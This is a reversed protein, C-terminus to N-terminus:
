TLVMLRVLDHRTRAGLKQLTNSQHFKVTRRTIGLAEAISAPDHGLLLHRLISRERPSLGGEEALEQVRATWLDGLVDHTLRRHVVRATNDSSREATVIDYTRAGDHARVVSTRPWPASEDRRLPCNVCPGRGGAVKEFCHDGSQVVGEFGDDHSHVRQVRGFDGDVMVECDVYALREVAEHSFTAHRVLVSVGKSEPGGLAELELTVALREGGRTIVVGEYRNLKGSLAEALWPPTPSGSVDAFVMGAPAGIAEDRPVGLLRALTDNYVRVVGQEDLIAVPLAARDAISAAIMPWDM